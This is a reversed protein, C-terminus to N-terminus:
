SFFASDEAWFSFFLLARLANLMNTFDPNLVSAYSTNDEIVRVHREWESSFKGEQELM